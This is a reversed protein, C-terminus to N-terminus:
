KCIFFVFVVLFLFLSVCSDFEGLISESMNSITSQGAEMTGQRQRIEKIVAKKREM